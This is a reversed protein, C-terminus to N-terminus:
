FKTLLDVIYEYQLEYIVPLKKNMIGDSDKNDKNKSYLIAIGGKEQWEQLNKIEDDILINGAASVVDSKRQDIDVTKLKVNINNKRLFRIKSEGESLSNIKTLITVDYNKLKKLSALNKYNIKSNDLILDWNLNKFLLRLKYEEIECSSFNKKYEKLINPWTDLIVGDFDIYIKM